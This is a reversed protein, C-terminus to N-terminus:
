GKMTQTIGDPISPLSSVAFRLGEIERLSRIVSLVSQLSLGTGRLRYVLDSGTKCEQLLQLIDDLSSRGYLLDFFAEEPLNGWKFVIMEPPLRDVRGSHLLYRMASTFSRAGAIYCGPDILACESRLSTIDVSSSFRMAAHYHSPKGGDEDSSPHRSMAGVAGHDLAFEHLVRAVEDFSSQAMLARVQIRRKTSM